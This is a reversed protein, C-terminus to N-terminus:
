GCRVAVTVPSYSEDRAWARRSEQPVQSKSGISKDNGVHLQHRSELSIEGDVEREARIM